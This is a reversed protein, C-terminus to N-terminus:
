AFINIGGGIISPVKILITGKDFKKTIADVDSQDMKFDKASFNEEQHVKSSAKPIVVVERCLNWNLLIQVPTRQYKEALEKIFDDEVLNAELKDWDM